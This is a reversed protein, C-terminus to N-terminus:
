VMSTTVFGKHQLYLRNIDFIDQQIDDTITGNKFYSYKMMSFTIEVMHEIVTDNDAIDVPYKSNQLIFVISKAMLQITTQQARYTEPNMMGNLILLSAIHNENYFNSTIHILTKLIDLINLQLYQEINNQFLALLNMMNQQAIEHLLVTMSPFFQYISSRPVGSHKAIEPISIQELPITELLFNASQLVQEMRKQSRQQSPKKFSKEM